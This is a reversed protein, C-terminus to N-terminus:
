IYIYIHGILKIPKDPALGNGLEGDCRNPNFVLLPATDYQHYGYHESQHRSRRHKRQHKRHKSDAIDCVASICLETDGDSDVTVRIPKCYM